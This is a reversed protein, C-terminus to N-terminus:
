EEIDTEEGDASDEDDVFLRRALGVAKERIRESRETEDLESDVDFSYRGSERLEEIEDDSDRAKIFPLSSLKAFGNNIIEVNKLNNNARGVSFVSLNVEKGTEGVLQQIQDDPWNPNPEKEGIDKLKIKRIQPRSKYFERMHDLDLEEYRQIDFVINYPQFLYDLAERDSVGRRSEYAYTGDQLMMLTMYRAREVNSEIPTNDSDLRPIKQFDDKVFRLFLYDDHAFVEIAGRREGIDGVVGREKTRDALESINPLSLSKTTVRGFRFTLNPM